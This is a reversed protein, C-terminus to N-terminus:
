KKSSTAISTTTANTSSAASAVNVTSSAKQALIDKKKLSDVISTYIDLRKKYVGLVQEINAISSNKVPTSTALEDYEVPKKMEAQAYMYLYTSYGVSMMFVALSSVLIIKWHFEPHFNSYKKQLISKKSM